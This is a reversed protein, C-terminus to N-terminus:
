GQLRTKRPGQLCLKVRRLLWWHDEEYPIWLEAEWVGWRERFSATPPSRLAQLWSSAWLSVTRMCYRSLSRSSRNDLLRQSPRTPRAMRLPWSGVGQKADTISAQLCPRPLGQNRGSFPQHNMKPLNKFWGQAKRCTDTSGQVQDVVCHWSWGWDRNPDGWGPLPSQCSTMWTWTASNDTFLVMTMELSQSRLVHIEKLHTQMLFGMLTKLGLELEMKNTYAEDEGKKIPVFENEM